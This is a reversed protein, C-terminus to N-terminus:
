NPSKSLVEQVLGEMFPDLEDLSLTIGEGRDLEDIGQQVLKRLHALKAKQIAEHEELLRLGAAVVEAEDKYCGCEVAQRMFDSQHNTLNLTHAAM